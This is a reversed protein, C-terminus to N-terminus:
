WLLDGNKWVSLITDHFQDAESLLPTVPVGCSECWTSEYFLKIGNVTSFTDLLLNVISIQGKKTFNLFKLSIWWEGVQVSLGVLHGYYSCDPTKHFPVTKGMDCACRSPILTGKNVVKQYNVPSSHPSPHNDRCQVTSESSHQEASWQEGSRNSKLTFRPSSYTVM